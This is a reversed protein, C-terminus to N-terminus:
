TLILLLILRPQDQNPLSSAAPAASARVRELELEHERQSAQHELIEDARWAVGAAIRAAKVAQSLRARWKISPREGNFKWGAIEEKIESEEMSAIDVLSSMPEQDFLELASAALTDPLTIEEAPFGAFQLAHGFTRIAAAQERTPETINAM